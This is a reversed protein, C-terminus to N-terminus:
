DRQVSVIEHGFRRMYEEFSPAAFSSDEKKKPKPPKYTAGFKAICFEDMTVQAERLKEAYAPGLEKVMEQIKKFSEKVKDTKTKSKVYAAGKPGLVKKSRATWNKVRWPALLLNFTPNDRSLRAADNVGTTRLEILEVWHGVAYSVYKAMEDRDGKFFDLAAVAHEYQHTFFHDPATDFGAARKASLYAEWVYLTDIKQEITAEFKKSLPPRAVPPKKEGQNEKIAGSKLQDAQDSNESGLDLRKVASELHPVVGQAAPSPSTNEKKLFLDRFNRLPKGVSPPASDHRKKDPKVVPEGDCHPCREEGPIEGTLVDYGIVELIKPTLHYENPRHRKRNSKPDIFSGRDTWDIYGQKKLAHLANFVTDRHCQTKESIWKHTVVVPKFQDDKTRDFITLFIATQTRTAGPLKQKGDLGWPRKRFRRLSYKKVRTGQDTLNRGMM